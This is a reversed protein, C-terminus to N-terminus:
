ETLTTPTIEQGAGYSDPQGGGWSVALMYESCDTCRIACSCMSSLSESGPYSRASSMLAQPTEGEWGCFGSVCLGCECASPTLDFVDFAPIDSADDYLGRFPLFLRVGGAPAVRGGSLSSPSVFLM